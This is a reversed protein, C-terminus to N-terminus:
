DNNEDKLWSHLLRKAMGYDKWYIFHLVDVIKASARQEVFEKLFRDRAEWYNIIADNKESKKNM